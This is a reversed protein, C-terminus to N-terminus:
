NTIPKLGGGKLSRGICHLTAQFLSDSGSTEPHGTDGVESSTERGLVEWVGDKRSSKSDDKPRPQGEGRPTEGGLHRNRRTRPGEVLRLPETKRSHRHSEVTTESNRTQGGM